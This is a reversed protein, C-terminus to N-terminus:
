RFMQGPFPHRPLRRRLSPLSKVRVSSTTGRWAFTISLTCSVNEQRWQTFILWAGPVTGRPQAPIPQGAQQRHDHRLLEGLM